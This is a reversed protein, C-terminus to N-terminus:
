ERGKPVPPPPVKVAPPSQYNQPASPKFKRLGSPMSDHTRIRVGESTQNPQSNDTQEDTAM